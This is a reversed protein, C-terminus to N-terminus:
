RERRQEKCRKAQRRGSSASVLRLTRHWTPDGRKTKESPKIAGDLYYIYGADIQAELTNPWPWTDIKLLGPEVDIAVAEDNFITAAVTM